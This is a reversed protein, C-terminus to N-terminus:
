GDRETLQDWTAGANLKPLDGQDINSGGLKVARQLEAPTPEIDLEALDSLIAALIGTVVPTGFSTGSQLVPGSEDKAPHHVPALVEPVANHFSVNGQWPQEFRFEGCSAGPECGQQGCFPGREDDNRIWYQGGEETEVRDYRCHAVFGGVGISEDVLAPCHVAKGDEPSRHGTAALVTTGAEIALKTEDAVRCHGGCDGDPEDQHFVGVSLNLLDVGHNSADGIAAILNGRSTQQNGAIVRYLNFTAEPAFWGLIEVM